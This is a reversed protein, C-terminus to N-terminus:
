ANVTSWPLEWTRTKRHHRRIIWLMCQFWFSTLQMICYSLKSFEKNCAFSVPESDRIDPQQCWDVYSKLSVCHFQNLNFARMCDLVSVWREVNMKALRARNKDCGVLRCLVVENHYRGSECVWDKRGGGNEVIAVRDFDRSCRQWSPRRHLNVPREVLGSWKPVNRCM